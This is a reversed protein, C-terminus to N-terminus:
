QKSRVTEIKRDYDAIDDGAVPSKEALVRKKALEYYAQAKQYEGVKDALDGALGSYSATLQDRKSLEDFVALAKQYDEANAYALALKIRLAPDDERGKQQDEIIKAAGAYDKAAYAKEVASTFSADNPQLQAESNTGTNRSDDKRQQLAKYGLGGVVPLLVLLCVVTVQWRGYHRMIKAYASENMIIASSAAPTLMDSGNEETSAASLTNKLSGEDSHTSDVKQANKDAPEAAEGAKVIEDDVKKSDM